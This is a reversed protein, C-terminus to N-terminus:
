RRADVAGATRAGSFISVRIPAVEILLTVSLVALWLLWAAMSVREFLGMWPTAGGGALHRAEVGTLAGFVLVAAISLLSYIRFWRGFAAASFGLQAVIMLVTAASLVLHGVDNAPMSQSLVGRTTMPALLWLPSMLAHAMVIGGVVRLARKGGSSAWVGLGFALELAAFPWIMARLLARTPAQTASLESVAQSLRSYGEYLSAAVVDNIIVYLLAYALGCALLLKRTTFSM